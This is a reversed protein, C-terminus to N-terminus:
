QHKAKDYGDRHAMAIGEQSGSRFNNKKIVSCKEQTVAM